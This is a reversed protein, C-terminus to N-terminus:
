VCEAHQSDAGVQMDSMAKTAGDKTRVNDAEFRATAAKEVKARYKLTKAVPHRTPIALDFLKPLSGIAKWETLM